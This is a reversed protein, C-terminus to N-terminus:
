RLSRVWLVALSRRACRAHVGGSVFGRGGVGLTDFLVGFSNRREFLLLYLGLAVVGVLECYFGIRVM